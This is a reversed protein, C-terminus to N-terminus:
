KKIQLILVKGLSKQPMLSPNADSFEHSSRKFKDQDLYSRPENIIIRHYPVNELSRRQENPENMENNELDMADHVELDAQNM